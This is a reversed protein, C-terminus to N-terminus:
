KGICFHSFISQLVEDTTIEGGVIEALHHLCMRLDESVLDGSINNDLGEIVRAICTAAATLAEYHRLSTVIVDGAQIAPIDALRVLSQQLEELGTGQKASICLTGPQQTPPPLIDCKNRVPLLTADPAAHLKLQQQMHLLAPQSESGDTLWIIIRAEGVKQWTRQMGLQEVTDASQRIGATDIFRFTIHGITICDEITDRTTGHIDSVIAKDDHLLQNLLTSKGVNTEGVIAVPVGKKLANGVRFSLILRDITDAISQSLQRLQSRSAFTVDEESFDLELELLSTMKLLKDRLLALQSSFGGRLQSLAIHHTAANTAAVLDAVAEAQSLDMKGNLFARQTYEGPLAQRAGAGILCEMIRQMIYSSGHCSIEVSDDGTYSHPARFAAVMVDDVSQGGDDVFQGYSLSGPRADTLQRGSASQFFRGAVSIARPGALRVVGLAGGPATAIACITDASQSYM